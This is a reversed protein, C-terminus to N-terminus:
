RVAYENKLVMFVVHVNRPFSALEFNSYKQDAWGSADALAPFEDRNCKLTRTGAHSCEANTGKRSTYLSYKM